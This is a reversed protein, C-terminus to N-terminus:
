ESAKKSRSEPTSILEIMTRQGQRGDSMSWTEIRPERQSRIFGLKEYLEIAHENHELVQIIWDKSPNLQKRAAHMITLAAHPDEAFFNAPSVRDKEERWSMVGVIKEGRKAVIYTVYGKEIDSAISEPTIKNRYLDEVAEAAPGKEENVFNERWGKLILRHIAGADAPTARTVEEKAPIAETGM